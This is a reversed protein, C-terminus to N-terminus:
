HSQLSSLETSVTIIIVIMIMMM